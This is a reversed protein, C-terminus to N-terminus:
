GRLRELTLVADPDIKVSVVMQHRIAAGAGPDLYMEPCLDYLEGYQGLNTQAWDLQRRQGKACRQIMAITHEWNDQSM